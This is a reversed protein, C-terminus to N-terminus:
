YKKAKLYKIKFNQVKCIKPFLTEEIYHESKESWKTSAVTRVVFINLACSTQKTPKNNTKNRQQQQDFKAGDFPVKLWGM